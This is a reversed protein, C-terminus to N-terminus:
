LAHVSLIRTNSLTCWDLKKDVYSRVGEELSIFDDHTTSMPVVYQLFQEELFQIKAKLFGNQFFLFIKLRM